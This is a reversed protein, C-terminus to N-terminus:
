RCGQQRPWPPLRDPRTSAESRALSSTSIITEPGLAERLLRLKDLDDRDDHGTKIKFVRYGEHHRAVAEEVTKRVGKIGVVWTCPIRDRFRGGILRYVPQGLAKGMLDHCAFDLAAKASGNGHLLADMRTHIVEIDFPDLGHLERGLFEIAQRVTDATEGMFAPITSVSGFGTLGDDTEITAIIHECHALRQTTIAFPESLPVRVIRTTIKTIITGM